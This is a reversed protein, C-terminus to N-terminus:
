LTETLVLCLKTTVVAAIKGVPAKAVEALAWITFHPPLLEQLPMLAELVAVDAQLPWPQISALVAASHM